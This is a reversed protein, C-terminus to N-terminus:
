IWTNMGGKINTVRKFGLKTLLRSGKASRMGSQCIVFVEREKSLHHSQQRLEALPINQFGKIHKTRFESPTRVDIFQKEKDELERKLETTTIQKMGNRTIFRQFVFLLILGFILINIFISENM